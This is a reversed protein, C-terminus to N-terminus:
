SKSSRGSARSRAAAAEIREVLDPVPHPKLLYAFAGTKLGLAEESLSVHGTLLIVEVSTDHEKIEGLVQIGDKGPMKVDLVVVDFKRARVARLASEGDIAVDVEYGRRRLVKSLTDTFPREDDVLLVKIPSM